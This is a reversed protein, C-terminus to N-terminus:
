LQRIEKLSFCGSLLLLLSYIAGSIFITGLVLPTGQVSLKCLATNAAFVTAVASFLPFLLVTVIKLRAGSCRILQVLNISCTLLNSIYMILIFGDLGRHELLLLILIIRLGSDGVSTYFTSMQRDMGKLIGDAISDLYMLPVIPALVSILRGVEANSYIIAGIERGAVFFIAGFLYGVLATIKIIKEVLHQLEQKRGTSIAESVEPILLAAVSSLFASPFFLLPLAMGKIMGFSSLAAASSMGYKTLQAPVLNNEATRLISNAYRGATIPAAIHLIKKSVSYNPLGRGSLRSLYHTDHRFYFYLYFCAAAEAILDSLFIGYCAATIGNPAMRGVFFFLSAFRVAHELIQSSSPPLTKRRAMFYGKICSATGMFILSFSLIKISPVARADGIVLKAILDAGFFLTLSSILAACVTMGNASSMIKLIGKKSGFCLEETILRTVATTIGSTAFTAALVYFSFILQYLGVGESGIIKALWIKIIM